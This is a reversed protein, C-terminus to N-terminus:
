KVVVGGRVLEEEKQTMTWRNIAQGMAHFLKSFPFYIFLSFGTVLHVVFIWSGEVLHPRFTVLGVGWRTVETLDPEAFFTMYTGGIVHALILGLAFYDTPISIRRIERTFIRKFLLILLTAILPFAFAAAVDIVINRGTISYPTWIEIIDSFFGFLHTGLLVVLASVHMVWAVVWLVRDSRFLSIFILTEAAIKGAVAKWTTKAPALNINLPLPTKLWHWLRYGTGAVFVVVAIYPLVIEISFLLIKM